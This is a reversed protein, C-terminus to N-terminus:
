GHSVRRKLYRTGQRLLALGETEPGTPRGQAFWLLMLAVGYIISGLLVLGALTVYGAFAETVPPMTSVVFLLAVAMITSALLPRATSAFQRRLSLAAIQRVLTMNWIAMIITAILRGLIAGMLVGISTAGGIFIGALLLPARVCLGWTDRYFMAKTKGTALALPSSHHFTRTGAVLALVQILPVAPLWKESLMLIVIPEALAALGAAVPFSLACTIALVRLYASRLKAADHKMRSLAPFLVRAIPSVSQGVAMTSVRGAMTYHGLQSTPVFAGIILPDARWNLSQVWSGLTLWISFSMLEKAKTLRFRPFYPRVVYSIAVRVVASALVGLVLAWYSQYVYAVFVSVVLGAFKDLLDLAVNQSFDMDREFLAIAPNQISGLGASAALVVLLSFLRQDGYLLALPYAALAILAFMALGKMLGFTWVTHLHDDEPDDHHILAQSLPLDTLTAVIAAAASAIAVLGFDEPTLLRALIITSIFGFATLAIRGGSIWAAGKIMSRKTPAM